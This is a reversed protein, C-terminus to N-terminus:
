WSVSGTSSWSGGTSRQWAVVVKSATTSRTIIASTVLTAAILYYPADPQWLKFLLTPLLGKLMDLIAVLCGYRVGLQLRVSTASISGSEFVKSGEVPHEITSVDLGPARIRVLLVHLSISGILYGIVGALLAIAPSM